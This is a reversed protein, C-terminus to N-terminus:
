RPILYFLPYLFIWVIDVFHWYLGAMETPMYYRVLPSDAALLAILGWMVLIGVIVHIAHLGTMAFYLVFFIQPVDGPLVAGVRGAEATTVTAGPPQHESFQFTPGPLHREEFEHSWEFGKIVLFALALVSTVALFLMVVRRQRLQSARVALAMTFSSTLLVATNITGMPVSLYHHAARFVEPHLSRYLTYSLFLAGFFMVETALFTWMGVTYAEDQQDRNEFQEGLFPEDSRSPEIAQASM